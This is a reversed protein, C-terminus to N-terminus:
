PSAILRKYLAALETAAREWTFRAARESGAAILTKRVDDDELVTELADGLAEVDLPDVLLAADGVVEPIAGGRGAVVPVGAAMAELPPFGFGEYLSPYAFASAGALLDGREDDSVYGLWRIRGSATAEARARDFAPRDWGDPGAIVLAVEPNRLALADFARVLTPFNKRPEIMGLALVYRDSGALRIGVSPDGGARPRVGPYVRVVREPPLGFHERVEAGVFDSIVHVTAGRDLALQVLRAGFRRTEEDVLEPHRVFSLDHLSAVVAARAPPVRYNTAHVVDVRGICREVRPGWGREWLPYVYRAPIWSGRPRVGPPCLGELDRRGTRRIAYAVLDLEDRAALAALLEATLHGIGTRPGLLPTGDLAVRLRRGASGPTM